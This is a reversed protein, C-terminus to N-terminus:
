KCVTIKNVIIHVSANQKQMPHLIIIFRLGTYVVHPFSRKLLHLWGFLGVGCNRLNCHLQGHRRSKRFNWVHVEGETVVFALMLLLECTRLFM